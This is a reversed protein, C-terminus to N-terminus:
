RRQIAKAIRNRFEEETEGARQKIDEGKEAAKNKAVEFRTNWAELTENARRRLDDATEKTQSKGWGM